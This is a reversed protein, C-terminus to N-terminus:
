QDVEFSVLRTQSPEWDELDQHNQGNFGPLEMFVNGREGLLSWGNQGEPLDLFAGPATSVEPAELEQNSPAGARM